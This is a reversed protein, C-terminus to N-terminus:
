GSGPQIGPYGSYYINSGAFPRVVPGSGNRAGDFNPRRGCAYVRVHADSYSTGLAKAGAYASCGSVVVATSARAGTAATTAGAIPTAVLGTLLAVLLALCLTLSTRRPIPHTRM